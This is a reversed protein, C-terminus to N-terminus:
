KRIHEESLFSPILVRSGIALLHFLLPIIMAYSFELELLYIIVIFLFSVIIIFDLLPYLEKIFREYEKKNPALELSGMDFFFGGIRVSEPKRFEKFLEIENEYVKRRLKRHYEFLITYMYSFILAGLFIMANTSLHLTAYLILLVSLSLSGGTCVLLLRNFWPHAVISVPPSLPGYTEDILAWEPIKNKKPLPIVLFRRYKKNLEDYRKRLLIRKDDPMRRAMRLKESIWELTAMNYSYTLDWRFFIHYLVISLFALFLLIVALPIFLVSNEIKGYGQTFLVAGGTIFATLVAIYVQLLRIRGNETLEIFKITEIYATRLSEGDPGESPM